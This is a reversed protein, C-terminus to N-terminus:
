VITDRQITGGTFQFLEYHWQYQNSDVNLQSLNIKPLDRIKSLTAARKRIGLTFLVEGLLRM